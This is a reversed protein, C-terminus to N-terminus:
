SDSEIRTVDFLRASHHVTLVQVEDKILRYIIRYNGHFIERIAEQNSEPVVRGANPFTELTKAKEFVKNAFLHAFHNSDRAIFKCIAEIDDLAQPTWRLRAM